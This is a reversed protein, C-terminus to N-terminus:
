FRMTRPLCQMGDSLLIGPSVCPSAPATASSSVTVLPQSPNHGLSSLFGKELQQPHQVVFFALMVRFGSGIM